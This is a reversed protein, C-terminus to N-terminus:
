FIIIIFYGEHFAAMQIKKGYELGSTRVAEKNSHQLPIIKIKYSWELCLRPMVEMNQLKKKSHSNKEM